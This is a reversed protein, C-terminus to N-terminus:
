CNELRFPKPGWNVLSSFLNIPCLDSLSRLLALQIMRSFHDEWEKSLLFHDIISMAVRKQNNTWTFRRTLPLDVLEHNNMSGTTLRGRKNECPYKINFHPNSWQSQCGSLSDLFQVRERDENSGYRNHGCGM